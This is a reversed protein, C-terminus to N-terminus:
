EQGAFIRARPSHIEQPCQIPSSYNWAEKPRDSNCRQHFHQSGSKDLDFSPYRIQGEATYHKDWLRRCASGVTLLPSSCRSSLWLWRRPRFGRKKWLTTARSVPPSVPSAQPSSVVFKLDLHTSAKSCSMPAVATYLPPLGPFRIVPGANYESVISCNTAHLEM